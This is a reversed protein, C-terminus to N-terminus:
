TIVSENWEEAWETPLDSTLDATLKFTICQEILINRLEELSKEDFKDTDYFDTNWVEAGLEEDYVDFSVFVEKSPGIWVSKLLTYSM